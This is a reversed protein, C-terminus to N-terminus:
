RNGLRRRAAFGVVGLGALLLAYSGPEPVPATAASTSMYGAYGVPGGFWGGGDRGSVLGAIELVYSGAGLQGAFFSTPTEDVLASALSGGTLTISDLDIERLLSLDWGLTLGFLNATSDITFSYCDNFGGTASFAHGVLAADPPGLTGLSFSSTCTAAAAPGALAAVLAAAIASTKM